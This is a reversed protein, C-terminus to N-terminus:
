AKPNVRVTSDGRIILRSNSSSLSVVKSSTTAWNSISSTWGNGSWGNSSWGNGSTGDAVSSNGGWGNGSTGDSVSGDAPWGDTVSSGNCGDTSSEWGRQINSSLKVRCGLWVKM